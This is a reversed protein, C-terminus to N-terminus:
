PIGSVEVPGTSWATGDGLKGYENSGWCWFGNEASWACTHDTGASVGDMPPLGQVRTPVNVMTTHGLGLQGNTNSGWCWVGGDTDVACTHYHGASMWKVGVLTGILTPYEKTSTNSGLGLLGNGGNGWCYAAGGQTWACSHETGATAGAVGSIATLETPLWQDTTGGIGLQRDNNKGWCYLSGEDTWACTHSSGAGVGAWLVGPDQVLTPTSRTTTTGDGVQGNGNYGWCWLSGDFRRVCRHSSGGSLRAVADLLPVQTPTSTQSPYGGSNGWCWVTFNNKLACNYSGGGEVAIVSSLTSIEVPEQALVLTSSALMGETSSSTASSRNMGWCWLTGTEQVGCSTTSSAMGATGGLMGLMGAVRRPTTHFQQMGDGLRGSLRSGWCRVSGDMLLACTFSRGAAIEQVNSL